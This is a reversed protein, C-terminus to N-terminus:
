SAYSGLVLGRDELSDTDPQPRRSPRRRPSDDEQAAVFARQAQWFAECGLRKHDPVNRCPCCPATIEAAISALVIPCAPKHYGRGGCDLCEDGHDVGCERCCLTEPDITCDSDQTHNAM